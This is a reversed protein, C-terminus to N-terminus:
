TISEPPAASRLLQALLHVASPMLQTTVPSFHRSLYLILIIHTYLVSRLYSLVLVLYYTPLPHFNPQFALNSVPSLLLESSPLATTRFFITLPSNLIISFNLFSSSFMCNLGLATDLSSFFFIPSTWCALIRLSLFKNIAPLLSTYVHPLFSAQRLSYFLLLTIVPIGTSSFRSFSFRLM